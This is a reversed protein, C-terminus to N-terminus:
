SVNEEKESENDKRIRLRQLERLRQRFDECVQFVNYYKKNFSTEEM